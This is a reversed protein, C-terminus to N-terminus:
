QVIPKEGEARKPHIDLGLMLEHSGLSYAQLDDFSFNYAYGFHLFNDFRYGIMAIVNMAHRYGAGLYLTERLFYLKGNVDFQLPAGQVYRILVSPEFSCREFAFRHGGYAYIHMVLEVEDDGALQFIQPVSLGIYTKPTYFHAGLAADFLMAAERGVISPDDDQSANVRDQNIRYQTGRLGIGIALRNTGATGLSLHYNVALQAGTRLEIGAADNFIIGGLGLKRDFLTGDVTGVVTKPAGSFSTWQDRYGVRVNLPGYAGAYAPNLVLMNFRYQEFIPEQQGFATLSVVMVCCAALFKKM